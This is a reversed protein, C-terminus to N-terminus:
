YIPTRGQEAPPGSDFGVPAFVADDQQNGEQWAPGDDAILHECASCAPYRDCQEEPRTHQRCCPRVDDNECMIAEPGNSESRGEGDDVM